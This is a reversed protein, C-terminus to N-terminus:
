NPLYLHWCYCLYSVDDSSVLLTTIEGVDSCDSLTKNVANSMLFM